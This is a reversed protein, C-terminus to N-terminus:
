IQGHALHTLQLIPVVAIQHLHRLRIEAAARIFQTRRGFTVTVFDNSFHLLQPALTAVNRVYCGSRIKTSRRGAIQRQELYPEADVM